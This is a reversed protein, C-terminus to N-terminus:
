WTLSVCPRPSARPGAGAEIWRYGAGTLAAHLFRRIALEDEIILILLAVDSM